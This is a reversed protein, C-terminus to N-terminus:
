TLGKNRTQVLKRNISRVILDQQKEDLGTFRLGGEFVRPDKTTRLWVIEGEVDMPPFEEDLKLRVRLRSGIHIPTNCLFKLGGASLDRTLIGVYTGQKTRCSLKLFEGLRFFQRRDAWAAAQEESEPEDEFEEQAKKWWFM